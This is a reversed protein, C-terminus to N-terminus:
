STKILDKRRKQDYQGTCTILTNLRIIFSRIRYCDKTKALEYNIMSSSHKMPKTIKQSNHQLVCMGDLQTVQLNIDHYFTTKAESMSAHKPVIFTTKGDEYKITQTLFSEEHNFITTFESCM